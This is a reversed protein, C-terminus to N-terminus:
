QAVTAALKKKMTQITNHVFYKVDQWSRSGLVPNASLCAECDAKGPVKRTALFKRLSQKVAYQEDFTWTRRPAKKKESVCFLPLFLLIIFTYLLIESYVGKCSTFM